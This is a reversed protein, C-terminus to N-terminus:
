SPPPGNLSLQRGILEALVTPSLPETPVLLFPQPPKAPSSAQTPYAATANAASSQIAAPAQPMTVASGLSNIHDGSLGSIANISM